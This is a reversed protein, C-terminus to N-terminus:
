DALPARPFSFSIDKLTDEVPCIGPSPYPNRSPDKEPPESPVPAPQERRTPTPTTPTQTDPKPEETTHARTTVEMTM